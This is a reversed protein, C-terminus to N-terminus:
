LPTHLSLNQEEEFDSVFYAEAGGDEDFCMREYLEKTLVGFKGFFKFKKFLMYIKM